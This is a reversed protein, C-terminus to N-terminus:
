TAVDCYILDVVVRTLQYPAIDLVLLEQVGGVRDRVEHLRMHRVFMAELSGRSDVITADVCDLLLVHLYPIM